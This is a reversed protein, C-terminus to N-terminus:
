KNHNEEEKSRHNRMAGEQQQPDVLFLYESAVPARRGGTRELGLVDQDGDSAEGNNGERQGDVISSAIAAAKDETTVM